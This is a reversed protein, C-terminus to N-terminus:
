VPVALHPLLGVELQSCAFAVESDLQYDEVLDFSSADVALEKELVVLDSVVHFSPEAADDEYSSAM